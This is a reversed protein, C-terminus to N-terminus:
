RAMLHGFRRALIFVLLAFAFFRLQHFLSDLLGGMILHQLRRLSSFLLGGLASLCWAAQGHFYNRRHGSQVLRRFCVPQSNPDGSVMTTKLQLLKQLSPQALGTVVHVIKAAVPRVRIVIIRIKDNRQCVRNGTPFHIAAHRYTPTSYPRTHRGVLDRADPGTQDVLTEGRMLPDLVVVQVHNTETAEHHAVRDRPFQNLSKERCSETAQLAM